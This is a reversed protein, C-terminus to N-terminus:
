QGMDVTFLSFVVLCCLRIVAPYLARSFPLIIHVQRFEAENMLQIKSAAVQVHKCFAKVQQFGPLKKCVGFIQQMICRFTEILQFM